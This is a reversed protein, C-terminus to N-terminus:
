SQERHIKERYIRWKLYLPPVLLTFTLYVCQSGSFGLNRIGVYIYVVYYVAMLSIARHRHRLSRSLTSGVVYLSISVGLLLMPIPYSRFLAGYTTKAFLTLGLCIELLSTDSWYFIYLPSFRTNQKKDQRKM